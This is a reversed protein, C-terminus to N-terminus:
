AKPLIEVFYVDQKKGVWFALSKIGSIVFYGLEKIAYLYEETSTAMHRYVKKLTGRLYVKTVLNDQEMEIFITSDNSTIRVRGGQKLAENILKSLQEDLQNIM